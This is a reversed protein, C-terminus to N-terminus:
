VARRCGFELIALQLLRQVTKERLQFVFLVLLSIQSPENSRDCAGALVAVDPRDHKKQSCHGRRRHAQEPEHAGRHAVFMKGRPLCQGIRISNLKGGASVTDFAKQILGRGLQLFECARFM